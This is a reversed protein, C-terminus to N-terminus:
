KSILFKHLKNYSIEEKEDVIRNANILEEETLATKKIKLLLILDEVNITKNKKEFLLAFTTEGNKVSSRMGSLTSLKDLDIDEIKQIELADCIQIDKIGADNFYAVAKKRRKVLTEVTGKAVEKAKDYIPQVLAFPVVKFVANRFAIACAANGTVIQMDETFTKGYKDTIKRKVEVTACYNSELDHCIGQATISKGDNAIVRAGSRINGYSSVVIEALRVSAGEISKGARPVAYSCSEAVEESFTALSTAKDSFVKLSRPYARATSIQMDIEAKIIEPLASEAVITMISENKNEM